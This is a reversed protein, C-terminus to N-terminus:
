RDRGIRVPDHGLDVAGLLGPEAGQHDRGHPDVLLRVVVATVVRYPRRGGFARHRHQGVGPGCGAVLVAVVEPDIDGLHGPPGRAGQPEQEPGPDEFAVGTEPEADGLGAAPPEGVEQPEHVAEVQARVAALLEGREGRQRTRRVLVQVPLDEDAGGVGLAPFEGLTVLDADVVDEPAAVERVGFAGPGVGAAPQLLGEMVNRDGLGAAHEAQGCGLREAEVGFPQGWQGATDAGGRGVEALAGVLRMTSAEQARERSTPRWQSVSWSKGTSPAWCHGVVAVGHDGGVAVGVGVEEVVPGVQLGRVVLVEVGPRRGVDVRVRVQEGVGGVAVPVGGAAQGLHLGVADDGLDDERVGDRREEGAGGEHGGRGGARLGLLAPRAQAGVVAPEGVEAGLGGAAPGATAWIRSLSTSSATRSTRRVLSAPRVPPM